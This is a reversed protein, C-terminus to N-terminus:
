AGRPIRALPKPAPLEFGWPSFLRAEGLLREILLVTLLKGEIWARASDDNRKPVHGLRLLSKLRKFCLEIQWRARYLDLVERAGLVERPLTVLVYVYEAAELTEPRVQIQKKTAQQRIKKKALDAALRSKRIACLRAPWQAGDAEFRVAWEGPQIGRLRRLHPLLAFPADRRADRLPFSRSNLRVLVDGRQRLVHAVGERHCYGRDGLIIDGPHVPLRKYTEGGKDDTVEYFDCRMEPLSLCYHVRWDTGTAGPEEVTTADVARLRRGGPAHVTVRAGRGAEFLRRALERLWGESRRLRKLLAVDTLSALGQVRARAVAQKLSLGTAVHLLLVQLLVEPSTIEGRARQMAGTERALERWGAPLFSTLLRWEEDMLTTVM